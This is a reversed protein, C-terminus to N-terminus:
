KLLMKITGSNFIHVYIFCSIKLRLSHTCLVNHQQLLEEHYIPTTQISILDIPVERAINLFLWKSSKDTM